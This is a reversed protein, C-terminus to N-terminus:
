HPLVRPPELGGGRMPNEERQEDRPDVEAAQPDVDSEGSKFAAALRRLESRSCPQGVTLTADQTSNELDFWEFWQCQQERRVSREPGTVM